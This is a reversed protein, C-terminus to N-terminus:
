LREAILRWLSGSRAKGVRLAMDCQRTESQEFPARIELNVGDQEPSQPTESLGCLDMFFSHMSEIQSVNQQKSQVLNPM